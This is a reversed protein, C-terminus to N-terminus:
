RSSIDRYLQWPHDGPPMYTGSYYSGLGKRYDVHDAFAKDARQARGQDPGKDTSACRRRTSDIREVLGAPLTVARGFSARRRGGRVVVLYAPNSNYYAEVGGIDGDVAVVTYGTLDTGEAFGADPRYEWPKFAAWSLSLPM